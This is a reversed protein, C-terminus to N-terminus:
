IFGANEILCFGVDLEMILLDTHNGDNIEGDGCLELDRKVM